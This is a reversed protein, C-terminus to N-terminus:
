RKIDLATAPDICSGSEVPQPLPRSESHVKSWQVKQQHPLNYSRKFRPNWPVGCNEVEAAPSANCACSPREFGAFGVSQDTQISISPHKLFASPGILLETKASGNPREFDARNVNRRICCDDCSECHIFHVR